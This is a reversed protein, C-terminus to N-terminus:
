NPKKTTKHQKLAFFGVVIGLLVFPLNLLQTFIADAKWFELIFRLSFTLVFFAATTMGVPLKRQSYIGGLLLWIVALMIAEYLQAPHRPSTDGNAAFIFAWPVDTTKGVIESNFLNGIRILM